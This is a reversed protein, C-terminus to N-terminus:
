APGGLRDRNSDAIRLDIRQIQGNRVLKDVFRGVYSRVLDRDCAMERVARREDRGVPLIPEMWRSYRRVHPQTCGTHSRAAPINWSPVRCEGAGAESEAQTLPLM